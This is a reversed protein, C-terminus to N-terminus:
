IELKKKLTPALTRSVPISSEDNDNLHAIYQGGTYYQINSIYTINVIFQRHVRIFDGQPLKKEMEKILQQTEYQKNETHILTKKGHSSLYIIETHDIFYHNGGEKISVGSKINKNIKVPIDRNKILELTEELQLKQMRMRGVIISAIIIISDLSIATLYLYITNDIATIFPTDLLNKSIEIAIYVGFISATFVCVMLVITIMWLKIREQLVCTLTYGTAVSLWSIIHTGLQAFLLTDIFSSRLGVSLIFAILIGLFTNITFWVYIHIRISKNNLNLLKQEM